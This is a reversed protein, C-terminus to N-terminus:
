GPFIRRLRRYARSASTDPPRVSPLLGSPSTSPADEAPPTPQSTAVADIPRDDTGVAPSWGEDAIAESAPSGGQSLADLAALADDLEQSGPMPAPGSRHAAGVMEIEDAGEDTTADPAQGFWLM